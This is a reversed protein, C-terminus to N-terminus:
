NLYLFFMECLLNCFLRFEVLSNTLASTAYQQARKETGTSLYMYIKYSMNKQMLM